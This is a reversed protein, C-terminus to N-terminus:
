LDHLGAAHASRVEERHQLRAEAAELEQQRQALDAAQQEVEQQQM